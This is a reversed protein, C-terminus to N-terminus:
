KKLPSRLTILNRINIDQWHCPGYKERCYDDLHWFIDLASCKGKKTFEGIERRIDELFEGCSCEHAVLNAFSNDNDILIIRIANM